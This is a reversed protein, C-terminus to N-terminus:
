GYAVRTTREDLRTATIAASNHVGLPMLDVDFGVRHHEPSVERVVIRVKFTLGFESTKSELVQGAVTPGPPTITPHRADSWEGFKSSDMLVAWVKEIPAAVVDMPCVSVPAVAM